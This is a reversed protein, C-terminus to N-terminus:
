ERRSGQFRPASGDETFDAGSFLHNRPTAGHARPELESEHTMRDLALALRQEVLSRAVAVTAALVPATAENRILVPLAGRAAPPLRNLRARDAKSLTSLRGAAPVVSWGPGAATIAWRGDWVAEEGPPLPLAPASRRAFEGCERTVLVHDAAAEVRAGCLVATFTEGVRLHNLLRDLRDGRPPRDGGGVCVLVAALTRASIVRDISFSGEGMPLPDSCVLASRADKPSLTLTSGGPAAEGSPLLSARARARAYTQDDNAPDDIWDRGQGKLWDRLEARGVDLMPRLLMLGRGEPWAPSPSWDRLRGLSAGEARMLESEAIDGATHAFLIVRAGAGRAAEAILRHRAARAAAPLGTAPKPGTWSLARWEAGAARAAEGAFATWRASDPSLAHDVTLALLPRGHDRAWGAAVQLLAISDGGGSM